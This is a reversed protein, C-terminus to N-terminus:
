NKCNRGTSHLYSDSNQCWEQYYGTKFCTWLRYQRSRWCSNGCNGMEIFTPPEVTIPAGRYFIIEYLCDELLWQSTEGIDELPIKVQEFNNDDMFIVGDAERYLMRMETEAVDALEFKEGSKFTREIVRGTKLHKLRVRNFAQGKGPKVFENSVINYPQGDIEIKIGGRMDNTSIQAM